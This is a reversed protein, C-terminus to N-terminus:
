VNASRARARIGCAALPLVLFLCCPQLAARVAPLRAGPRWGARLPLGKRVTRIFRPHQDPEVKKRLWAPACTWAATPCIWDRQRDLNLIREARCPATRPRGASRCISNWACRVEAGTEDTLRHAALDSLTRHVRKDGIDARNHSTRCLV